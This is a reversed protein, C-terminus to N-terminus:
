RRTTIVTNQGCREDRRENVTDFSSETKIREKNSAPECCGRSAGSANFNLNMLVMGYNKEARTPADGCLM